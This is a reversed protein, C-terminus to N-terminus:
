AFSCRGVFRWFSDLGSAEGFHLNMCARDEDTDGQSLCAQFNTADTKSNGALDPVLCGRKSLFGFSFGGMQPPPTGLFCVWLSIKAISWNWSVTGFKGCFKPPNAKPSAKLRLGLLGLPFGVAGNVCAALINAM